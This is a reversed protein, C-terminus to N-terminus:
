NRKFWNDIGTKIWNCMTRFDKISRLVNFSCSVPNHFYLLCNNTFMPDDSVDAGLLAVINDLNNNLYISGWYGSNKGNYYSIYVVSYERKFNRYELYHSAIAYAEDRTTTIAIIDPKGEKPKAGFKPEIYPIECVLYLDKKIIM